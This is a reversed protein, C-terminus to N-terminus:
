IPADDARYSLNIQARITDLVGMLALTEDLPMVPSERLGARLCRMVEIAQHAYGNGIQPCDVTRTDGNALVVTLAKAQAPAAARHSRL